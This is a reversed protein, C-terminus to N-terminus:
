SKRYTFREANKIKTIWWIFNPEFLISHCSIDSTNMTLSDVPDLNTWFIPNLPLSIKANKEKLDNRNFTEEYDGWQALQTHIIEIIKIM